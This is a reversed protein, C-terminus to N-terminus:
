GNGRTDSAIKNQFVITCVLYIALQSQDVEVVRHGRAEGIQSGNWGKHLTVEICNM